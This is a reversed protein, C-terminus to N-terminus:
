FKHEDTSQNPIWGSSVKRYRKKEHVIEHFALKSLDLGVAMNWVSDNQILIDVHAIDHGTAPSCPRRYMLILFIQVFEWIQLSKCLVSVQKEIILHEVFM